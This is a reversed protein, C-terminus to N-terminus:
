SYAYYPLCPPPNGGQGWLLTFGYGYISIVLSPTNMAIAKDSNEVRQSIAPRNVSGVTTVYCPEIAERIFWWFRGWGCRRVSLCVNLEKVNM